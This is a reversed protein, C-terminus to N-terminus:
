CSNRSRLLMDARNRLARGSEHTKATGPREVPLPLSCARTATAEDEIMAVRWNPHSWPPPGSIPLAVSVDSRDMRAIGLAASRM